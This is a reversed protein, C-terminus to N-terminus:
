GPDRGARRQRARGAEDTEARNVGAIHIVRTSAALRMASGPATPSTTAGWGSPEVGHLARLRCATHWGLFGYGGTIAVKM